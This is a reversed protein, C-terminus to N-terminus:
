SSLPRPGARLGRARRWLWRAHPRQCVDCRCLAAHDLCEDDPRTLPMQRKEDALLQDDLPLYWTHDFRVARPDDPKHRKNKRESDPMPKYRHYNEYVRTGDPEVRRLEHHTM